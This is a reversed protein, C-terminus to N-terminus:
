NEIWGLETKMTVYTLSQFVPVRSHTLVFCVCCQMCFILVFCFNIWFLLFCFRKEAVAKRWQNDKEFL